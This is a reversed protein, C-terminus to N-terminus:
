RDAAYLKGEKTVAYLRGQFRLLQEAALEPWAMIGRELLGQVARRSDPALSNVAAFAEALAGELSRSSDNRLLDQTKAAWARAQGAVPELGLEGALRRELVSWVGAIEPKSAFAAKVAGLWRELAPWPPPAPQAPAAFARRVAGLLRGLGSFLSEGHPGLIDGDQNSAPSSAEVAEAQGASIGTGLERLMRDRWDPALGAPPASLVFMGRDSGAFLGRVSVALKPSFEGRALRSWANEEPGSIFLGHTTLACRKGASEAADLVLGDLGRQVDWRGNKLRVVMTPNAGTRRKLRRGILFLEDGRSAMGYSELHFPGAVRRWGREDRRWLGDEVIAHLRGEHKFPKIGGRGAFPERWEGRGEREFLRNDGDEAYLIGGAAMIATINALRPEVPRWAGGELRALKAKPDPYGARGIMHPRGDFFEVNGDLNDPVDAALRRWSRGEAEYLGADFVLFAKGGSLYLRTKSSGRGQLCLRLNKGEIEYLDNKVEIYARGGCAGVFGGFRGAKVSNKVASWGRGDLAFVGRPTLAYSFGGAAFIGRIPGSPASGLVLRGELLAAVRKESELPWGKLRSLSRALATELPLDPQQRLLEAAAEPWRAITGPEIASNLAKAVWRALGDWPAAAQPKAAFRALVGGLWRGLGSFLSKGDDALVDGSKEVVPAAAPGAAQAQQLGQVERELSALVGARWDRLHEDRAFIVQFLGKGKRGAFVMGGPVPALGASGAEQFVPTWGDKRADFLLGKATLVYRRGEHDILDELSNGFRTMGGAIEQKTWIRASGAGDGRWVETTNSLRPRRVYLEGGPALFDDELGDPFAPRWRGGELAFLKSSATMAYLRDGSKRLYRVNEGAIIDSAGLGQFQKFNATWIDQAYVKGEHEVILGGHTVLNPLPKWADGERRFLKAQDATQWSETRAMVYLVGETQGMAVVAGPASVRRWGGAEGRFLGGDHDALYEEGDSLRFYHFGSAKDLIPTLGAGDLEYVRKGDCVLLKGAREFVGRQLFVGASVLEWRGRAFVHLGRDTFAYLRGKFSMLREVKGDPVPFPVAGRVIGQALAAEVRRRAEDTLGYARAAAEAVVEPLPRATDERLMRAAARRWPGTRGTKIQLGPLQALWGELAGWVPEIEQDAFARRAAGLLRGLGTFLLKGDGDRVDGDSSVGHRERATEGAASDTRVAEVHDSVEKLLTRRWDPPLHEHSNLIKVGSGTAIVLGREDAALDVIDYVPLPVRVRGRLEFLGQDTAVFRKGAVAVTKTQYANLNNKVRRRRVWYPGWRVPPPERYASGLERINDGAIEFALGFPKAVVVFLKGDREYPPFTTNLKFNGPFLLKWRGRELLFIGQDSFACLGRSTRMVRHVDAGPLFNAIAALSNEAREATEPDLFQVKALTRALAVELPADPNERLWAYAEKAWAQSLGPKLTISLDDAVQREMASWIDADAEGLGSPAPGDRSAAAGVAPADGPTRANDFVAALAGDRAGDERLAQINWDQELREVALVPVAAPPLMSAAPLTQPALAPAPTLRPLVTPVMPRISIRAAAVPLAALLALLWAQTM